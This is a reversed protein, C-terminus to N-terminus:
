YRRHKLYSFFAEGREGFCKKEKRALGARRSKSAAEVETTLSAPANTQTRKAM